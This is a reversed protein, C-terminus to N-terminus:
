MKQLYFRLMKKYVFQLAVAVLQSVIQSPFPENRSYNICHFVFQVSTNWIVLDVCHLLPSWLLGDMTVVTTFNRVSAIQVCTKNDFYIYSVTLPTPKHSTNSHRWKTSRYSFLSCGLEEAKTVIWFLPVLPNTPVSSFSCQPFCVWAWLWVSQFTM